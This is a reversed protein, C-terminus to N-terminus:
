RTFSLHVRREMVNGSYRGTQKILVVQPCIALAWYRQFLFCVLRHTAAHNFQGLYAALVSHLKDIQNEDHKFIVFDNWRYALRSQYQVIKTKLNNVMRKRVLLHTPRVIYGLFSCGNHISALRRIIVKIEEITVRLKELVQEKDSQNNARIILKVM